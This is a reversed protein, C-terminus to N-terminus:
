VDRAGVRDWLTAWAEELWCRLRDGKGASRRDGNLGRLYCAWCQEHGLFVRCRAGIKIPDSGIETDVEEKSM